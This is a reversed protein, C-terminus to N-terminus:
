DKKCGITEIFKNSHKSIRINFRPLRRSDNAQIEYVHPLFGIDRIMTAADDALTPITTVINVMRYGRDCYISGDSEILGRICRNQYIKRQKIWSPIGINQINKSGDYDNWGLLRPWQNSYYSVDVCNGNRNTVTSIKNHPLIISINEHVREIIGPHKADCTVRLRVARTNPNSLNGDGCAVGVVYALAINQAHTM